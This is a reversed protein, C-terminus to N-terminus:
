APMIGPHACTEMLVIEPSAGVRVPVISTGVGRTVFVPWHPGQVHGYLYKLGFGSGSVLAGVGPLVIQGGHTHGSLQLDVRAGGPEEIEAFDPNHSMLLTPVGPDVGALAAKLDPKGTGLDDVGALCLGRTGFGTLRRNEDLHVSSNNLFTVGAGEIARIAEERGEWNDHNGLTAVSAITPRLGKLITTVDAFYTSSQSVFDGPLLVLDPKLANVRKVVAELYERSIAPGRHLDSIMALRLGHLERPLDKLPLSFRTLTPEPYHHVAGYASAAAVGTGALFARRGPLAPHNLSARLGQYKHWLAYYGLFLAGVALPSPLLIGVHLDIWYRTVLAPAMLIMLIIRSVKALWYLLSVNQLLQLVKTLGLTLSAAVVAVSVKRLLTM